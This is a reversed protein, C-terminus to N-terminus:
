AAAVERTARRGGRVDHEDVLSVHRACEGCKCPLRKAQAEAHWVSEGRMVAGIVIKRQANSDWVIPCADVTLAALVYPTVADGEVLEVGDVTRDDALTWPTRTAGTMVYREADDAQRSVRYIAAYSGTANTANM